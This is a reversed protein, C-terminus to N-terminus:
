EPEKEDEEDFAEPCYINIVDTVCEGETQGDGKCYLDFAIGALEEARADTTNVADLIENRMFNMIFRENAKSLEQQTLPYEKGDRTITITSPSMIQDKENM